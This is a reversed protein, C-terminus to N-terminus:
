QYEIALQLETFKSDKFSILTQLPYVELGALQIATTKLHSNQNEKLGPNKKVKVTM